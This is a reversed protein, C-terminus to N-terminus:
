VLSPRRRVIHRADIRPGKLRRPPAQTATAVVVDTTGVDEASCAGGPGAAAPAFTNPTVERLKRSKCGSLVPGRKRWEISRTCDRVFVSAKKLTSSKTSVRLVSTGLEPNVRTKKAVAGPSGSISSVHFQPPSSADLIAGARLKPWRAKATSSM